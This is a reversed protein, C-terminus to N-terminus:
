AEHVSPGTGGVGVTTDKVTRPSVVLACGVGMILIQM